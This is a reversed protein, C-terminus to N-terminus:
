VEEGAVKPKTEVHRNGYGVKLLLKEAEKEQDGGGSGEQFKKKVSPEVMPASEGKHRRGFWGSVPSVREKSAKVGNAIEM